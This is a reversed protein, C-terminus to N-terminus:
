AIVGAILYLLSLYLYLEVGVTEVLIVRVVHAAPLVNLIQYAVIVMYVQTKLNM